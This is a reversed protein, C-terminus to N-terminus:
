WCLMNVMLMSWYGGNWRRDNVCRRLKRCRFTLSLRFAGLKIVMYLLHLNLLCLLNGRWITVTETDIFRDTGTQSSSMM